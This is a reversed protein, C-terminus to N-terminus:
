GEMLTEMHAEDDVDDDNDSYDGALAAEFLEGFSAMESKSLIGDKDKDADVFLTEMLDALEPHEDAPVTAMLEQKQLGGESHKELFGFLAMLTKGHEDAPGGLVSLSVYERMAELFASAEVESSNNIVGGTAVDVLGDLIEVHEPRRRGDHVLAGALDFLAVSGRPNAALVRLMRGVFFLFEDDEEDLGVMEEEPVGGDFLEELVHLNRPRWAEVDAGAADTAKELDGEPVPPDVALQRAQSAVGHRHALCARLLCTAVLPAFSRLAM